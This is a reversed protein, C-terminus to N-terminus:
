QKVLVKYDPTKNRLSYDGNKNEILMYMKNLYQKLVYHSATKSGEHILIGNTWRYWNTKKMSGGSKSLLIEGNYLFNFSISPFINNDSYKSPNFDGITKITDITSWIGIVNPDNVFPYDTKDTQRFVYVLAICLIIIFIVLFPWKNRLKSM